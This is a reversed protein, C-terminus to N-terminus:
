ATSHQGTHKHLRMRWCPHNTPTTKGRGRGRCRGVGGVLQAQLRAMHGKSTKSRAIEQALQQTLQKNTATLSAAEADKVARWTSLQTKLASVEADRHELQQAQDGAQQRLSAVEDELEQIQTHSKTLV